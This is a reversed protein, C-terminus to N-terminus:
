TREVKQENKILKDTQKLYKIYDAILKITKKKGNAKYYDSIDKAGLSRPIWTYLLEPYKKKQKNMFSIGTSDNDFLTIIYKFREKLESLMTDTLFQTESCPACATIGLSHLCMVDKLSKTIVLLNGKKPLQDYGQIKKSPWNGM